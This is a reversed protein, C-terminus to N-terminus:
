GVWNELWEYESVLVKAKWEWSKLTENSLKGELEQWSEETVKAKISERVLEPVCVVLLLGRPTSAECHSSLLKVLEENEIIEMMIVDLEEGQAASIWEAVEDPQIGIAPALTEADQCALQRLTTIGAGVVKTSQEEGGVAKTIAELEEEKDTVLEDRARAVERMAEAESARAAKFQAEAAAIQSASASGTAEAQAQDPAGGLVHGGSEAASPSPPPLYQHDSDEGTEQALNAKAKASLKRRRTDLCSWDLGPVLARIASAVDGGGHKVISWFIRPSAGAIKVPQLMNRQKAGQGWQLRLLEVLMEKSLFEVQEEHRSRAGMAKPFTVKIAASEGSALTRQGACETMCYNEALASALRAEAKAEDYRLAVARRTDRRMIKANRGTAGTVAGLLQESLDGKNSAVITDDGARGRKKSGGRSGSGGSLTHLGTKPAVKAPKKSKILSHVGTKAPKAAAAKKAKGKTKGPAPGTPNGVRAAATQAQVTVTENNGLAQDLPQDESLGIPRPPFGSLLKLGEDGEPCALELASQVQAKFDQFTTTPLAEVVSTKGQYKLRLKWPSIM